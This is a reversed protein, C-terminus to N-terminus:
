DSFTAEAPTGPCLELTEDGTFDGTSVHVQSLHQGDCVYAGAVFTDPLRFVYRLQASDKPGFNPQTLTQPAYGFLRLEVSTATPDGIRTSSAVPSVQVTGAPFLASQSLQYSVVFSLPPPSDGGGCGAIAVVLPALFPRTLNM